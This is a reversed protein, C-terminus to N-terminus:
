DANLYVISISKSEKQTMCRNSTATSKYNKSNTSLTYNTFSIWINKIRNAKSM